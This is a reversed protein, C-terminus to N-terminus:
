GAHNDHDLSGPTAVVFLDKMILLAHLEYFFVCDIMDLRSKIGWDKGEFLRGAGEVRRRRCGSNVRGCKAWSTGTIVYWGNPWDKCPNGMENNTKGEATTYQTSAIM